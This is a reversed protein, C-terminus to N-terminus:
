LCEQDDPIGNNNSDVVGSAASAVISLNDLAAYGSQTLDFVITVSSGTTARADLSVVGYHWNFTAAAGPAVGTLTGQDLLTGPSNFDFTSGATDYLSVHMIPVSTGFPGGCGPVDIASLDFGVNVRDKGTYAFTLALRDDEVASLMGLAYNGGIGSPDSYNGQILVGEVTNVQQFVFNSSGYLLNISRGDLTACNAVLAENPHEFDNTYLVESAAGGSGADGPVCPGGGAGGAGGASAGGAGAGGESAGGAGAGGQLMGGAGSQGSHGGSSAGASAGGDSAGSSGGEGARGGNPGGASVDGGTQSGGEGASAGGGGSDTSGAVGATTGGSAGGRGPMGGSSRGGTSSGGQPTGGDDDTGCANGLLLVFACCYIPFSRLSGVVYSMHSEVRLEKKGAHAVCTLGRM